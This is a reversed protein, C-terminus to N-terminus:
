YRYRDETYRLVADHGKNGKWIEMTQLIPMKKAIEAASYILHEVKKPDHQPTLNQSTLALM